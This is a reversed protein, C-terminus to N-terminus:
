KSFIVPYPANLQDRVSTMSPSLLTSTSALTRILIVRRLVEDALPVRLNNHPFLHMFAAFNLRQQPRLTLSLSATYTVFSRENETVM